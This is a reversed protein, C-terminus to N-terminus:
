EPHFYCLEISDWFDRRTQPLHVLDLLISNHLDFQDKSQEELLMGVIRHRSHQFIMNPLFRDLFKRNDM